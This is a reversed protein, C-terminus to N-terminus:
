LLIETEASSTDSVNRLSWSGDPLEKWRLTDGITWGMDKIFEEPLPLFLEGTEPDKDVTITRTQM